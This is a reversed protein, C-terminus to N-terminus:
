KKALLNFEEKPGEIFLTTEFDVLPLENYNDNYNDVLKKNEAALSFSVDDCKKNRHPVINGSITLLNITTRKM